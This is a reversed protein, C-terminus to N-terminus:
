TIPIVGVAAWQQYVGPGGDSPAAAYHRRVLEALQVAQTSNAYTFAALATAPQVWLQFDTGDAPQFKLPDNRDVDQGGNWVVCNAVQADANGSRWQWGFDCMSRAVESALERANAQGTIRYAAELGTAAIGEQWSFVAESDLPIPSQRGDTRMIMFPRNYGAGVQRGQWAPYISLDLRDKIRKQIDLRGTCLYMWSGSLLTRGVARAADPGTGPWGPRFPPLPLAQQALYTECEHEMILALQPDGTLYYACCILNSSWHQNDRGWWRHSEFSSATAKGLRDLSVGSNFHTRQDWCMWQPHNRSRVISADAECFHTPRCSDQLADQLYLDLALPEGTMVAAMCNMVGFDAQAGTSGPVYRLGYKQEHWPDAKPSLDRNKIQRIVWDTGAQDNPWWAPRGPTEGFAGWAKSDRWTEHTAIAYIPTDLAAFASPTPQLLMAGRWCHMQGDGWVTGVPLLALKMSGDTNIVRAVGKMSGWQCSIAMGAPVALELPFPMTYNSAPNLPNSWGVSLYWYLHSGDPAIETDLQYWCEGDTFRGRLPGSQPSSTSVASIRVAESVASIAPVTMWETTAKVQIGANPGVGRDVNIEKRGPGMSTWGRLKLTRVSGDPWLAGFPLFECPDGNTLMLSDGPAVTGQPFPVIVQFFANTRQHPSPSDLRVTALTM